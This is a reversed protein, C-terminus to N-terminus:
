SKDKDIIKGDPTKTLTKGSPSIENRNNEACSYDYMRTGTPLRRYRKVVHWPGTFAVPDNLVIDAEFTNADIRRMRTVTRLEDSHIAGTRDFIKKPWGQLGITDFVLTDGEWHGVSDGTMTPWVEDAPPHGRGDTYIRVVNPGNETLIWSGEPRNIFEYTDPVNLARPFGAVIGCSTQPDPWRDEDVMKQNALYKAQWEPKYPITERTGPAGAATGVKTAQDFVTNGIMTWVGTWDPMVKGNKDIVQQAQASAGGLLAIALAAGALSIRKM